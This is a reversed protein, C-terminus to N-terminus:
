IKSMQTGWILTAAVVLGVPIAIAVITMSLNFKETEISTIDSFSITITATSDSRIESFLNRSKSVVGMLTDGQIRYYGKPFEYKLAEDTYVTIDIQDATAKLEDKSVMETSTCGLNFCLSAVLVCSVIGRKM